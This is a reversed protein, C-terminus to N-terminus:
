VFKDGTYNQNQLELCKDELVNLDILIGKKFSFIEFQRFLIQKQIVGCHDCFFGKSKVISKCNWCNEQSNM